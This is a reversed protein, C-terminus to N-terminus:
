FLQSEPELLRDKVDSLVWCSIWYQHQTVFRVSHEVVRQWLYKAAKKLDRNPFRDQFKIKDVRRQRAFHLKFWLTWWLMRVGSGTCIHNQNTQLRQWPRQPWARCKGGLDELNAHRCYFPLAGMAAFSYNSIVVATWPWQTHLAQVRMAHKIDLCLWKLPRTLCTAVTVYRMGGTAKLFLLLFQIPSIGLLPIWIHKILGFWWLLDSKRCRGRYSVSERGYSYSKLTQGDSSPTLSLNSLFYWRTKMNLIFQKWKSHLKPICIRYTGLLNENHSANVTVVHLTRLETLSFFLSKVYSHATTPHEEGVTSQQERKPKCLERSRLGWVGRVVGWCCKM